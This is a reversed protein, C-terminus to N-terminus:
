VSSKGGLLKAESSGIRFFRGTDSANEALYDAVAGVPILVSRPPLRYAELRQPFVIAHRLKTLGALVFLAAALLSPSYAIEAM